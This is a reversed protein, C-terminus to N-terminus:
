RRQFPRNGILLTKDQFQVAEGDATFFLDPLFPTLRLDGNWNLYLYGNRVHVRASEKEGHSSAEYDGVFVKWAPDDPGPREGPRDNLPLYDVGTPGFMEVAVADNNDLAFVFRRDRVSFETPSHVALKLKTEGIQCSLADEDIRFTYLGERALYTGELRALQGREVTVSPKAPPVGPGKPQAVSQIALQAVRQSPNLGSSSNTLAVIGFQEAPLWAITASYGYGAGSHTLITNGMRSHVAVGLGYGGTQDKLVFQPKYMESLLSQGVIQRGDVRGGQLHFLVFRAMDSASSYLGGAGVMPIPTTPLPERGLHGKAFSPRGVAEQYDYTTDKMGLPLLLAEKMLMAFPKGGQAQLVWATLDFGLNSYSHRRGPPYKLWTQSISRIHEDFPCTGDDYNNGCPAEHPLGSWHGLLQRLTIKNAEDEGFRSRVTFDPMHKTLPDDIGLRRKEAAVFFGTATVTKSVSQVSFLTDPTVRNRKEQDAFGFGEAWIVGDRDVLAIAAGPVKAQEMQRPLEDKIKAVLQTHRAAGGPSQLPAWALTFMGLLTVAHM